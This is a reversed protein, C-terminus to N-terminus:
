RLKATLLLAWMLSGDALLLRHRDGEKGTLKVLVPTREPCPLCCIRSRFASEQGVDVPSDALHSVTTLAAALAASKREATM